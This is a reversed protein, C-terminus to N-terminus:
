DHDTLDEVYSEELSSAEAAPPAPPTLDLTPGDQRPAKRPARLPPAKRRPADPLDDFRLPDSIPEEASATMVPTLDIIKTRLEGPDSGVARDVTSELDPTEPGRDLVDNQSLALQTDAWRRWDPRTEILALDKLQQVLVDDHEGLRVRLRVLNGLYLPNARDMAIATYYLELAEDTRGASELALALNYVVAPDGPLFERAQEFAMVAQYLNGQEYHMLGLNNHAPGYTEDAEVAERFQKAARDIQQKQLSRIGAYTLRNARETDRKTQVKIVSRNKSQLSSCGGPLLCGAVSLIVLGWARRSGSLSGVAARVTLRATARAASLVTLRLRDSRVGNRRM